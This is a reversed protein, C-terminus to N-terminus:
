IAKYSRIIRMLGNNLNVKPKWKIYYKLKNINPVRRYIDEYGGIKKM